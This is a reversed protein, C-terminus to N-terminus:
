DRSKENLLFEALRLDFHTDINAVYGDIIHAATTAGRLTKVEKNAELCERTIAYAIGNRQYTPKLQQRAVIKATAIDYYDLLGASDINFQNLPHNKSDTESVTWVSDHNNKILKKVVETVQEATRLPSTPQLMIM